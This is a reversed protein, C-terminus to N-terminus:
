GVKIDGDKLQSKSKEWDPINAFLSMISDAEKVSNQSGHVKKGIRKGDSDKRQSLASPIQAASRRMLDGEKITKMSKDSGSSKRSGFKSEKKGKNDDYPNEKFYEGSGMLIVEQM